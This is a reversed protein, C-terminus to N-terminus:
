KVKNRNWHQSIVKLKDLFAQMWVSRDKENFIKLCQQIFHSGVNNTCLFEIENSNLNNLSKTANKEDYEILKSAINCAIPKIELM